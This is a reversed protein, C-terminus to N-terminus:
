NYHQEELDDWGLEDVGIALMSELPSDIPQPLPGAAMLKNIFFTATNGFYFILPHRLSIAKNYYAREDSLCDFLSEYLEWTQIFYERIEQRKEEATGHSLLLTKTAEPLGVARSHQPHMM